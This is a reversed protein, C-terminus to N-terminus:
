LNTGLGKPLLLRHVAAKGREASLNKQKVYRMSLSPLEKGLCKSRLGCKREFRKIGHRERFGAFLCLVFEFSKEVVQGFNNEFVKM